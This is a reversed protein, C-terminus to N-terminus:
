DVLWFHLESCVYRHGHVIALDLCNMGEEEGKGVREKYPGCVADCGNLKHLMKLIAGVVNLKGEKCALMLPTYQFNSLILSVPIM